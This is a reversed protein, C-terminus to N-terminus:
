GTPTARIQRERRWIYVGAAIILATGAITKSDPPQAFVAWSIVTAYIIQVYVVPALTSAPAYRYGVTLLSHGLAGFLGILCTVSWDVTTAPWTWNGLVFPLLTLAPLGSTIVQGTPNNDVGAIMRTLVFYMSACVLAGIAAFISWHFAVGWPAAIILVGAFGVLIAVFRRPGIQEGLIPIALLSVLVPAAFFIATTITLPLYALAIFNLTTGGMLMAARAIQIGPANSRFVGMGEMPLFWAIAMLFHGAYRIFVVQLAPLGAAVLWKASSDILTFCFFAGFLILVAATLRDERPRLATSM